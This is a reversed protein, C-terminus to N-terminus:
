FNLVTTSCCSRPHDIQLMLLRLEMYRPHRRQQSQNADEELDEEEDMTYDANTSDYLEKICDDMGAELFDSISQLLNTGM